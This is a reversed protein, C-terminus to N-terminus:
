QTGGVESPVVAKDPNMMATTLQAAVRELKTLAQNIDGISNAKVALEGETFV